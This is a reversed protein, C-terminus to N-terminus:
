SAGHERDAGQEGREDQNMQQRGLEGGLAAIQREHHQHSDILEPGVVERAVVVLEGTAEPAQEVAAGDVVLAALEVRDGLRRRAVGGHEGAPHRGAGADHAVLEPHLIRIERDEAVWLRGASRGAVEAARRQEVPHQGAIGRRAHKRDGALIAAGDERDAPRPSLDVPVAVTAERSAPVVRVGERIPWVNLAGSRRAAPRYQRSAAAGSDLVGLRVVLRELVAASVRGKRVWERGPRPLGGLPESVVRISESVM